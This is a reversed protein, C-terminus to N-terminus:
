VRETLLEIETEFPPDFGMSIHPGFEQMLNWLQWESWGDGNTKPPVYEWRAAEPLAQMLREHNKRLARHGPERLKVRVTNNVNFRM